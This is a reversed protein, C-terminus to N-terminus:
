STPLVDLLSRRGSHPSQHLGWFREKREDRAMVGVTERQWISEAMTVWLWLGFWWTLWDCVPVTHWFYGKERELNVRELRLLPFSVSRTLSRKDWPDLVTGLVQSNSSLSHKSLSNLYDPYAYTVLYPQLLLLSLLVRLVELGIVFSEAM